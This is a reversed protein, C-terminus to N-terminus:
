HKRMDSRREKRVITGVTDPKYGYKRAIDCIRMNRNDYDDRMLLVATDPIHTITADVHDLWAKLSFIKDHKRKLSISSDGYLWCLLRYVQRNGAVSLTHTIGNSGDRKNYNMCLSAHVGLFRKLVTRISVCFQKTSIISWSYRNIHAGGICGDGDTYGRIFHRVLEDNMLRKPFKLTLTKAPTLKFREVLDDYMTQSTITLSKCVSTTGGKISIKTYLPNNSGLAARIIKLYGEDKISLGINIKTGNDIWGDAALLGAVYLAAETDTSFLTDNCDYRRPQGIRIPIGFEKAKSLLVKVSVKHQKSVKEMSGYRTYEAALFKKTIFAYEAKTKNSRFVAACKRSCFNNDALRSKRTWTVCACTACGVKINDSDTRKSM